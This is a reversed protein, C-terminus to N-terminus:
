QQSGYYQILADIGEEGHEALVSRLKRMMKKRVPRLGDLYDEMTFTLYPMWQGALYGGKAASRGGAEHCQECNELHLHEGIRAKIPDHPQEYRVLGQRAFFRAMGEIEADTYGKAIRTMITARREGKRYDLMADIFREEDMGAISPISPGVSSGDTGHCGACTYSMMAAKSTDAAQSDLMASGLLALVAVAITTKM